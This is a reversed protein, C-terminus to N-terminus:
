AAPLSKGEYQEIRTRLDQPIPIAKGTAYDIWVVIAVGQAVTNGEPEQTIIHEFRISRNSISVARGHAILEAPFHVQQRFDCETHALTPGHSEDGASYLDVAHFYAIRASEFYTFYKANNVHGMADMDGWRVTIPQKLPFSETM